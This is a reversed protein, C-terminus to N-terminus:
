FAIMSCSPPRIPGSVASTNCLATALAEPADDPMTPVIVNIMVADPMKPSNCDVSLAIHFTPGVPKVVTDRNIRARAALRPNTAASPNRRMADSTTLAALAECQRVRDRYQRVTENENELDFRLMDKPKHSTAHCTPMRALYDIQRSIIFAHKLEDHAHVELQDAINMYEASKLV